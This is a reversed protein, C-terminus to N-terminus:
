KSVGMYEKYIEEGVIFDNAETLKINYSQGKLVLIEKGYNFMLSSDDTFIKNDKLANLHCDYIKMTEYKQPLQINILEQRNLSYNIKDNKVGLVTFPIQIGFTVNKENSNIINEFDKITVFPRASEHIIVSETNVEKLGNFVSEQRTNGGMVIKYKKKLNYKLIYNEIYKKYGEVCVIIIEEISSIKELREISHMIVPKGALLLFQKPIKKEMRNGKGGALLIVSQKM